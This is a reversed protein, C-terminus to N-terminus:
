IHCFLRFAGLSLFFNKPKPSLILYEFFTEFLMGGLTFEHKVIPRRESCTQGVVATQKGGDNFIDNWAVFSHAPKTDTTAPSPITVTQGYFIHHPLLKAELTLFFDLLHSNGLEIARASIRNQTERIFPFTEDIANTSKDIIVVGVLRHIVRVDITHRPCQFIDM